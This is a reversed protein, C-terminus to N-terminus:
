LLFFANSVYVMCINQSTQTRRIQEIGRQASMAKLSQRLLMPMFITDSM